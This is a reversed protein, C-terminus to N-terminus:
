ELYRLHGDPSREVTLGPDSSPLDVMLRGQATTLPLKTSFVCINIFRDPMTPMPARCGIELVGDAGERLALTGLTGSSLKLVCGHMSTLAFQAIIPTLASAGALEAASFIGKSVMFNSLEAAAATDAYGGAAAWSHTIGSLYDGLATLMQNSADVVRGRDRDHRHAAFDAIDRVLPPCDTLFRIDAFVEDIDNYLGRGALTRTVRVKIAQEPSM